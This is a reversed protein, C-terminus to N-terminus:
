EVTNTGSDFMFAAAVTSFLPPLGLIEEGGGPTAPLGPIGGGAGPHSLLSKMLPWLTLLPLVLLLGGIITGAVSWGIAIWGLRVKRPDDLMLFALGIPLGAWPFLLGLAAAAKSALEPDGGGLPVRPKLFAPRPPRTMPPAAAGTRLPQLPRGCQWCAAAAPFNNAGCYACRVRATEGGGSPGPPLVSM